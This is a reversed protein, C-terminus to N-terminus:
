PVHDTHTLISIHSVNIIELNGTGRKVEIQQGNPLTNRIMGRLEMNTAPSGAQLTSYYNHENSPHTM